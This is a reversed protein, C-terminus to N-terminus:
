RPVVTIKGAVGRGVITSDYLATAQIPAITYTGVNTAKVAYKLVTAETGAAGYLVVRDERVDGFEPEFTAGPLAISLAFSRASEATDGDGAGDGEAEGEGAGSENGEEGDGEPEVHDGEGPEEAGAAAADNPHAAPAQIVPEFGGPLLDVIALGGVTARGLTRVRVVATLEEGLKVTAAPKGDATEYTRFVEIGKSVAKDPLGADFGAESVVYYAGFPGASSFRIATAAASFPVAPLLSAAPLVLTRAQGGATLEEAGLAGAAADGATQAYAELALISWASSFTNYTARFIPDVIADIEAPTIRAAREPFHRAVIYLAQSDYALRDYYWDSDVARARGFTLGDVIARAKGDQKLLRYTAALYLGALDSKWEDPHNAVLHKEEAALFTTPVMGARALVYTAYARVGAEPLGEVDTAAVSQLYSTASKVMDAPVAFGRERAELLMHVAWVSALKDVAPNAAWRGFSGDENQRGRLLGIWREVAAASAAPAYGFEPRKGLVLPPVVQSVIQETCGHPFKELYGRLGHTLGLPLHSVGAVGQRLEGYLHRAVPVTVNDNRLHGAQFTALYPVPPRVSLESDLRAHAGGLAATFTLTAAGVPARARVKFSASAERLAAITLQRRTGDLPEIGPTAALTLTVGAGTGSGALNNAVSVSIETEDGPALFTPVNPSIVFDGRVVARREFAGLADPAVAVAMVRLTGNFSDPVDYVVDREKPGVDLIGSWFAVPKQQKRRFPNLNAGVAADEDGGPAAAGAVLRQFEPLIMDLIQSTRVSLARKQFFFGLPDPSKYDAVRLIGEDIAFVIAKSAKDAKVKMHFPEGPRALDPTDIQVKVQRRARSISFPVIGHSLPSMFVEESAPDRIFSVSVYGGGELGEPVQIHEVTATTSTKFWKWAYVHDREITILGAGTYPAKIQMELDDGPTLDTQKLAVQLEANKEVERSLNGYGTVSYDVRALDHDATDRIVLAYDGPKETPLKRRAGEAPIEFPKSALEVEKRVSQYRYTGNDQRALVSVYKREFTIARLGNAKIRKGTPAIAILEVHRESGRSMYALDGDAKYGVLQPLPSVIASVDAVVSRGGEAEFGEAVVALRYTASAFRKLGLDLEAVGEDNTTADALTEAVGEKPRLPDFFRYDRWRGFSPIWPSLTMKARVKRNAAPTGFLNALTIRAKLDGPPVWGDPNEQTLAARIKMRDPLFERVQVTTSGLLNAAHGDKVIYLNVAYTGAPAIEPTTHRLEEFGSPGLRLKQDKVTLGRADTVIVELPLGATRASWDKNKVIIGVRIEDGPRYIGRDSFLFATLGKAAGSTAEESVGGVDFRSTDLVRDARGVPLFSQDRGSSVLYLSPEKDRQLNKFAPLAAHGDRGTSADLVPLGNKGLVEVRAGSVPEGTRTSQVFLDHTGDANEKVLVGLDTLLILRADGQDLIAKTKPDFAQARLLFLGRRDDRGGSGALYKSLDLGDYEPKGPQNALAHTEEFIEALNTQDFRYNWAPHAFDGLSQTVLHQIQNPLVRGIEYKIAPIDRALVPVKHEGTQALLAGNQLIRLMHPYPPVTVIAQYTEGLLYGGFAHLGKEIRVHVQRGVPAKMKFSHPTPFETESAIPALSVAAGRKLDAPTIEAPDSYSAPKGDATMEPLLTVRLARAVEKDSTGVSTEVILAQEPEYRENDVLTIQASTVKLFNYLGPVVVDGKLEREFAPGGRAAQTGPVLTVQLTADHRPIAIAPSHVYATGKWKDYSIQAEYDSPADEKDSPVLRLKVRPAFTGPNVPHSFGFTAVVKKLAPNVPDQYFQVENVRAEFPPTTFPAAYSALRVHQAVLGKKALRVTLQQGVPWDPRPTFTLERDSVWRWVGDLKVPPAGTMGGLIGTTQPEFSVGATISKDLKDLPAVSDEFELRLPHPHLKEEIRTPDPEVLHWAVTLPKPRHEWWRVLAVGGGATLAVAALLVGAKLKETRMWAGTRRGGRGVARAWPPADWSLAPRGLLFALGRVIGRTARQIAGQGLRSKGEGQAM